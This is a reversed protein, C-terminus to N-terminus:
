WEAKEGFDPSYRLESASNLRVRSGDPLQVSAKQGNEVM